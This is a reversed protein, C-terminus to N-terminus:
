GKVIVKRTSAKNGQMLRIFYIGPSINDKITFDYHYNGKPQRVPALLVTALKGEGNHLSIQVTEDAELAYTISLQDTFPNPFAKFSYAAADDTTETLPITTEAATRAFPTNSSLFADLAVTPRGNTGFAGKGYGQWSNHCQPEWYFVGLGRGGSISNVKNM